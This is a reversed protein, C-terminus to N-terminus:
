KVMGNILDVYGGIIVILKVVIYICFGIVIGCNIVNCLVVIENYSDGLNCVM